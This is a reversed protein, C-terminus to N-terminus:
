KRSIELIHSRLTYLFCEDFDGKQYLFLYHALNAYWTILGMPFYLSILHFHKKIEKKKEKLSTILKGINTLM